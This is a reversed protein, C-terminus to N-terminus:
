NCRNYGSLWDDIKYYLTSNKTAFYSSLDCEDTTNLRITHTFIESNIKQKPLAEALCRYAYDLFKLWMSLSM